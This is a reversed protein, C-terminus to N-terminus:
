SVPLAVCAESRFGYSHLSREPENLEMEAGPTEDELYIGFESPCVDLKQSIQVGGCIAAQPDYLFVRMGHAEINGIQQERWPRQDILPTLENARATYPVIRSSRWNDLVPPVVTQM